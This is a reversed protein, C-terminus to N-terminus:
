SIGETKILFSNPKLFWIFLWRCFIIGSKCRRAKKSQFRDVINTLGYKQFFLHTSFFCETIVGSVELGAADVSKLSDMNQFLNKFAKFYSELQKLTTQRPLLHWLSSSLFPSEISQQLFDFDSSSVSLASGELLKKLKSLNNLSDPPNTEQNGENLQSEM